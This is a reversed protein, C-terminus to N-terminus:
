SKDYPVGSLKPGESKRSVFILVALTFLYPIIRYLNRNIGIESLLFVGDGNIDLTSYASSICKFFGFCLSALAVSWPKWNGFITVALGLFGLGSVDGTSSCNAMTLAYVFGGIGALAGSILTGAYRMRRVNIGASDAANTNEGCARLRLGFRTKYMIVSLAIFLGISIYTTLYNKSIFIDSFFDERYTRLMFWSASDGKSLSFIAQGVFIDGALLVIGPSLMNLATGSITQNSSLTVAAFSLLMSFLAGSLASLIVALVLFLQAGESYFLEKDQVIRLFLVGSFSGFIMTGELALNIIGSREAFVGGLAVLLIPVSYIVTQRLIFDM